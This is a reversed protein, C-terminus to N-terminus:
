QDPNSEVPVVPAAPASRIQMIGFVRRKDIRAPWTSSCRSPSPPLAGDGPRPGPFGYGTHMARLLDIHVERLNMDGRQIRDDDSSEVAYMENLAILRM